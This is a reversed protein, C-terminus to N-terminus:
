WPRAEALHEWAVAGEYVALSADFPRVSLTWAENGGRLVILAPRALGKAQIAIEAVGSTLPAARQFTISAPRLGQPLARRGRREGGGALWCRGSSLEICVARPQGSMLAQNRGEALLGSLTRVAARLDGERSVLSLNPVLLGLMIGIVAIVVVLEVLTFGSARRAAQDPLPRRGRGSGSGGPSHNGQVEM